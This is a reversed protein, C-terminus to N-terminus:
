RSAQRFLRAPGHFRELATGDLSRRVEVSHPAFVLGATTTFVFGHRGSGLGARELDERYRNALVQGILRGGAFVDLCVPAEPHAPNQAWGSISTSGILDIYGRLAPPEASIPRIGALADIRRRATEGPM